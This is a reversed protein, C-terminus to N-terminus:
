MKNHILLYVNIIYEAIEKYNQQQQKDTQRVLIDPNGDGPTHRACLPLM